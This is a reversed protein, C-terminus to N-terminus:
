VCNKLVANFVKDNRLTKFKNLNRLEGQIVEQNTYTLDVLRLKKPKKQEAKRM